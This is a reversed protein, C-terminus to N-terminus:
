PIISMQADVVVDGEDSLDFSPAPLCAPVDAEYREVVVSHKFLSHLLHQVNGKCIEIPIHGLATVRHDFQVTGNIPPMVHLSDNGCRGTLQYCPRGIEGDALFIAKHCLM